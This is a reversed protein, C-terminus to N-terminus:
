PAGRSRLGIRGGLDSLMFGLKYLLALNGCVRLQRRVLALVVDPDSSFLLGAISAADRFVVVVDWDGDDPRGGDGTGTHLETGDLVLHSALEGNETRFLYRARSGRVHRYHFSESACAGAELSRLLFGLGASAVAAGAAPVAGRVLAEGLRRDAEDLWAWLSM